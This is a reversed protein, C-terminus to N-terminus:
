SILSCGQVQIDLKEAGSPGATGPPAGKRKATHSGWERQIRRDREVRSAETKDEKGDKVEHLQKPKVTFPEMNGIGPIILGSVSHLTVPSCRQSQKLNPSYAETSTKEKLDPPLM